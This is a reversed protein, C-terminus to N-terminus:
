GFIPPLPISYRPPVRKKMTIQCASRAQPFGRLFHCMHAHLYFLWGEADSFNFYEQHTEISSDSLEEWTKESDLATLEAIREESPEM